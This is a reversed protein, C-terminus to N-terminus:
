QYINNWVACAPNPALQPPTPLPGNPPFVFNTNFYDKYGCTDATARLSDMTGQDLGFLHAWYEVFPLAVLDTQVVEPAISPDYIMLGRVDFLNKDARNYMADVIYPVYEGAYSEGTMYVKKREMGFITIFNELFGLFQAAVDTESTASPVGQSFGTGVPQEVRHHTIPTLRTSRHPTQPRGYWLM